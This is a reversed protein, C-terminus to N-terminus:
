SGDSRAHCAAGSARVGAAPCRELLEGARVGPQEPSEPVVYPGVRGQAGLLSRVAPPRLELEAGHRGVVEFRCGGDSRSLGHVIGRDLRVQLLGLHEDGPEGPKGARALGRERCVHTLRELFAAKRRLNEVAVDEASVRGRSEAVALAVAVAVDLADSEGGGRQRPGPDRHEDRRDGRVLLCAAARAAQDLRLGPEDLHVHVGRELHANAAVRLTQVPLGEGPFQLM